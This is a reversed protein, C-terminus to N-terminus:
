VAVRRANASEGFASGCRRCFQAHMPNPAHCREQRCMRTELSGRSVPSMQSPGGVLARWLWRLMTIAVWGTFLVATIIMVVVFLMIGVVPPAM